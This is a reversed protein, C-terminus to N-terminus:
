IFYLMIFNVSYNNRNFKIVKSFMMSRDKILDRLSFNWSKTWFLFLRVCSFQLKTLNRQIHPNFKCFFTLIFGFKRKCIRNLIWLHNFIQVFFKKEFLRRSCFLGHSYRYIDSYFLKRLYLYLHFSKLGYSIQFKCGVYFSRHLPFVQSWWLHLFYPQLPCSSWWKQARSNLLNQM